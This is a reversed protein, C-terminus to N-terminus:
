ILLGSPGIEDHAQVDGSRIGIRGILNFTGTPLV